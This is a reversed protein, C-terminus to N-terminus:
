LHALVGTAVQNAFEKPESGGADFHQSRVLFIALEEPIPTGDLRALLIQKGLSRALYIEDMVTESRASNESLFLLVVKSNTMGRHIEKGWSASGPAIGSRDIWINVGLRQIAGVYEDVVKRDQSSYSIFFTADDSVTPSIIGSPTSEDFGLENRFQSMSQTRNEISKYTAKTLATMWGSLEPYRNTARAALEDLDPEFVKSKPAPASGAMISLTTVGLSYVDTWPGLDGGMETKEPPAYGATFSLLQPADEDLWHASGFDILAVDKGPRVIVNAPKVDGHIAGQSHVADLADSVKDVIERVQKASFGGVRGHLNSLIEGEVYDMAFFISGNHRFIRRLRPAQGMTMGALVSAEKLLANEAFPQEWGEVRHIEGNAGEDIRLRESHHGFAEKLAYLRGNKLHQVLYVFSM